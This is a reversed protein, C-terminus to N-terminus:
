RLGCVGFCVGVCFCVCFCLVCMSACVSCDEVKPTVMVQDVTAQGAANYCINVADVIVPGANAIVKKNSVYVLAAPMSKLVRHCDTRSLVSSRVKADVAAAAEDITLLWDAEKSGKLVPRFLGTAINYMLRQKEMENLHSYVQLSNYKVHFREMLTELKKLV